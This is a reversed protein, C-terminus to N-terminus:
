RGEVGAPTSAARAVPIAVMVTTGQGPASQVVLTGGLREIRDRLSVLGLHGHRLLDSWSVPVTFGAGDDRAMLRVQGDDWELRIALRTAGAHRLVNACAERAARYLTEEAVPDLRADDAFDPHELTATLAEDRNVRQVLDDLAAVLGLHSLEHPHLANCVARLEFVADEAREVALDLQAHGGATPEGRLADRASKAHRVADMMTQLPGDHLEQAIQKRESEQAQVLRDRLLALEELQARLRDILFSNAIATAM